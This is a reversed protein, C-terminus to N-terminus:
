TEEVSGVYPKLEQLLSRLDDESLGHGVELKQDSYIFRIAALSVPQHLVPGVVKLDASSGELLDDGKVGGVHIQFRSRDIAIETQIRSYLVTACLLVGGVLIFPLTAIWAILPFGSDM